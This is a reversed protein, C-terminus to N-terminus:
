QTNYDKVFKLIEESHAIMNQGSTIVHEVSTSLPIHGDFPMKLSKATAVITDYSAKDLFSYVKIRNYGQQHMDIVAKKAENPYSVWTSIPPPWAKGSGDIIRSLILRPGLMENKNIKDRLEIHEQFASMVNITTIGNALYIFLIDSYDIEEKTYKKEPPYMMNWADGVLHVHVDSLGPILFKGKANIITANKPLKISSAPGLKSIKGGQVVVHYNQLVIEKNMPIVNVNAFIITTNVQSNLSYNCLIIVIFALIIRLNKM